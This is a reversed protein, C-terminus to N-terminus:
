PTGAPPTGRRRPAPHTHTHHHRPHVPERRIFAVTGITLGVVLGGAGGIAGSLWDFTWGKNDIVSAKPTEAAPEAAPKPSAPTTASVVGRAALAADAREKVQRDLEKRTIVIREPDLPQQPPINIAINNNLTIPLAGSEPRGPPTITSTIVGTSTIVNTATITNTPPDGAYVSKQGQDVLAYGAVVLAAAAGVRAAPKKLAVLGSEIREIFM